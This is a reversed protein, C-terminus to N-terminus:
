FVLKSKVGGSRNREGRLDTARAKKEGMRTCQLQGAKKGQRAKWAKRTHITLANPRQVSRFPNSEQDIDAVKRTSFSLSRETRWDGFAERGRQTSLSLAWIQSVTQWCQWSLWRQWGQCQMTQSGSMLHIFLVIKTAFVCVSICVCAVSIFLIIYRVSKSTSFGFLFTYHHPTKQGALQPAFGSSLQQSGPREPPSLHSNLRVKQLFVRMPNLESGSCNITM